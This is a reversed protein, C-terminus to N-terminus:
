SVKGFIFTVSRCALGLFKVTVVGEKKRLDLGSRCASTFVVSAVERFAVESDITSSARFQISSTNVDTM